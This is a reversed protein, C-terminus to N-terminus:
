FYIMLPQNNPLHTSSNIFLNSTNFLLHICKMMKFNAINKIDEFNSFLKERDIKIESILPLKIKTFCSCIAKKNEIDYDVFDCNEECLSMNNNIYQKQREILNM